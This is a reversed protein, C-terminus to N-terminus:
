LGSPKVYKQIITTISSKGFGFNVTISFYFHFIAPFNYFQQTKITFDRFFRQCVTVFMLYAPSNSWAKKSNWNRKCIIQMSCHNCGTVIKKFM